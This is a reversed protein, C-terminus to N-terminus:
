HETDKSYPLRHPYIDNASSLPNPEVPSQQTVAGAQEHRELWGALPDLADFRDTADAETAAYTFHRRLKELFTAVMM